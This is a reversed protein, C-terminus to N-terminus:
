IIVPKPGFYQGGSADTSAAIREVLMATRLALNLMATAALGDSALLLRLGHALPPNDAEEILSITGEARHLAIQLESPHEDRHQLYSILSGNAMEVLVMMVTPGATHLRMSRVAVGGDCLGLLTGLDATLATRHGVVPLRRHAEVVVPAASSLKPPTPKLPLLLGGLGVRAKAEHALSILASLEQASLYAADAIFLDLGLRIVRQAMTNLESPPAALLLVDARQLESSSADPRLMLLEPASDGVAVGISQRLLADPHEHPLLNIIGIQPQSM